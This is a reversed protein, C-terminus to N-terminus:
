NNLIDILLIFNVKISAVSVGESGAPIFNFVKVEHSGEKLISQGETTLIWTEEDM